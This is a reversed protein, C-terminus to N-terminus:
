VDCGEKAKENRERRLLMNEFLASKLKTNVDAFNDFLQSIRRKLDIIERDKAELQVLYEKESRIGELKILVAYEDSIKTYLVKGDLLAKIEDTTIIMPYDDYVEDYEDGVELQKFHSGDSFFMDQNIIAM